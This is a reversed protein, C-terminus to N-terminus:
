RKSQKYSFKEAEEEEEEEEAEAEAEAEAETETESWIRTRNYSKARIDNLTKVTLRHNQLNHPSNM